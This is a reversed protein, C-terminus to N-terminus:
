QQSRLGRLIHIAVLVFVAAVVIGVLSVSGPPGFAALELNRLIGLVGLLGLFFALLYRMARM